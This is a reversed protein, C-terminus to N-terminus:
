RFLQFCKKLRRMISFFKEDVSYNKVVDSHISSGYVWVMYVFRTLRAWFFESSFLFRSKICSTCGLKKNSLLTIVIKFCLVFCNLTSFINGESRFDCFMKELWQLKFFNEQFFCYLRIGLLCPAVFQILFGNLSKRQLIKLNFLLLYGSSTHLFLLNNCCFFEASIKFDLLTLVESQQM